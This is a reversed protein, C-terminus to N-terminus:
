SKFELGKYKRKGPSPSTSNSITTGASSDGQMPPDLLGLGRRESLPGIWQELATQLVKLQVEQSALRERLKIETSKQDSARVIELIERVMEDTSRKDAAEANEKPLDALKKELEPWCRDFSRDLRDEPLKTDDLAKNITTILDKTGAKDASKGHFHTLPGSPIDAPEIEIYYPCVHTKELTKSLAGAEFLIWPAVLNDRTLCLIGFKTEQLNDALEHAWRQGADIDRDSMWPEVSQIVDPLFDRLAIAVAKSKEGSWSIFVRM